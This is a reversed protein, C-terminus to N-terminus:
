GSRRTNTDKVSGPSRTVGQRRMSDTPSSMGNPTVRTPANRGSKRKAELRRAARNLPPPPADSEDEAGPAGANSADADSGVPRKGDRRGDDRSAPREARKKSRPAM